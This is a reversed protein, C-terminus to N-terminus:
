RRTKERLYQLLFLYNNGEKHPTLMHPLLKIPDSGALTDKIWWAIMEVIKYLEDKCMYGTFLGNQLIDM